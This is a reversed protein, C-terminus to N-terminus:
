PSSDTCWYPPHEINIQDKIQITGQSLLSGGKSNKDTAQNIDRLGHFGDLIMFLKKIAGIRKWILSSDEDM